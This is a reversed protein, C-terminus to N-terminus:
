SSAERIDQLQWKNLGAWIGIRTFEPPLSVAFNVCLDAVPCNACINRAKRYSPSGAGAFWMDPDHKPDTCSGHEM